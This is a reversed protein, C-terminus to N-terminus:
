LCSAGILLRTRESPPCLPPRYQERCLGLMALAAKVPIPNVESFLAACLPALEAAAEAAEANKGEAYLRCLAAMREPVVNSVVSIVGAAGLSLYPLTLEDSGSWVTVERGLASILRGAAALDGSADKIGVLNPLSFLEAWCEEPIKMGTRSPVSYAIVPLSTAGCVTRYHEILGRPSTKNCYPTIVLLADAGAAEAARSLEAARRTDNAGTGAIVPLNGHTAEKALRILEVREGDTLTAAEGTTGATVLAAAGGAEQRAALARFADADIGGDEGFPTIMATGVGCFIPQISM